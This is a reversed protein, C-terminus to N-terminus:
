QSSPESCIQRLEAFRVKLDTNAATLEAVQMRLEKVQVALAAAEAAAAATKSIHAPAALGIREILVVKLKKLGISQNHEPKRANDECVSLLKAALGTEMWKACLANAVGLEGGREGDREGDCVLLGNRLATASHDLTWETDVNRVLEANGILEALAAHAGESEFLIANRKPYQATADGDNHTCNCLIRALYNLVFGDDAANDRLVRAKNCLLRAAWGALAENKRAEVSHNTLGLFANVAAAEFARQKEACILSNKELLLSHELANTACVWQHPYSKAHAHTAITGTRTAAFLAMVADVTDSQLQAAMCLLDAVCLLGGADLFRMRAADNVTSWMMAVDKYSDKMDRGTRILASIATCTQLLQVEVARGFAMHQQEARFVFRLATTLKALAVVLAGVDGADVAPLEDHVAVTAPVGEPASRTVGETVSETASETVNKTASETVNKTASETVSANASETVSANASETVSGTVDM